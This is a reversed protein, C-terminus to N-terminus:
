ANLAGEPGTWTPSVTTQLNEPSVCVTVDPVTSALPVPWGAPPGSLEPNLTAPPVNENLNVWAPM